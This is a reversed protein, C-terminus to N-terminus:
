FPLLFEPSEHFSVKPLYRENPEILRKVKVVSIVLEDIWQVGRRNVSSMEKSAFITLSFLLVPKSLAYGWRKCLCPKIIFTGFWLVM